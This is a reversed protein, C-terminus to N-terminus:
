ELETLDYVLLQNEKGRLVLQEDLFCAAGIAKELIPTRKVVQGEKDIQLWYLEEKGLKALIDWGEDTARFAMLIYSFPLSLLGKKNWKNKALELFIYRKQQLDAIAPYFDFAVYHESAKFSASKSHHERNTFDKPYPFDALESFKLTNGERQYWALWATEEITEQSLPLTDRHALAKSHHVAMLYRNNQIQYPVSFEAYYNEHKLSSTALAMYDVTSSKEPDYRTLVQMSNFIRASDKQFIWPISYSCHLIGEKFFADTLSLSDLGYTQMMERVKKYEEYANRQNTEACLEQLSPLPFPKLHTSDLHFLYISKSLADKILLQRGKLPYFTISSSLAQTLPIVKRKNANSLLEFFVDIKKIEKLTKQWILQSDVAIGLKAGTPLDLDEANKFYSEFSNHISAERLFSHKAQLIAKDEPTKFPESLFVEFHAGKLEEGILNFLITCNPCDYPNFMVVPLAQANQAMLSSSLLLWLSLSLTLKM